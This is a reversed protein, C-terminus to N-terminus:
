RHPATMRCSVAESWRTPSTWRWLEAASTRSRRENNSACLEATSARPPRLGTRRAAFWAANSRSIEPLRPRRSAPWTTSSATWSRTACPRARTWWSTCAPSTSRCRFDLTSVPAVPFRVSFVTPLSLRRKFSLSRWLGALSTRVCRLTCTLVTRYVTLILIELMVRNSVPM